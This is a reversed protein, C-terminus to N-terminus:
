GGGGQRLAACLGDVQAGHSPRVANPGYNRDLQARWVSRWADPLHAATHATDLLALLDAHPPAEM